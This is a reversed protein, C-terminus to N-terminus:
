RLRRDGDGRFDRGARFDRDSGYDFDDDFGLDPPLTSFALGGGLNVLLLPLWM